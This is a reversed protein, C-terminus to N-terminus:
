YGTRPLKQPQAYIKTVWTSGGVVFEGNYRGGIDAKNGFEFGNPLSQLVTVYVQPEQVLTFGAKVTGFV